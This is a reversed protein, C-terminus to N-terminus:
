AYPSLTKRMPMRPDGRRTLWGWFLLWAAKWEPIQRPSFYISACYPCGTRAVKGYLRYYPIVRGCGGTKPSGCVVFVWGVDATHSTLRKELRAAISM